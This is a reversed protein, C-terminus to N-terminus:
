LLNYLFRDELRTFLATALFHLSFLILGKQEKSSNQPVLLLGVVKYTQENQPTITKM